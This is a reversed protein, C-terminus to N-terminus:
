LLIRRKIKRFPTELMALMLETPKYSIWPSPVISPRTLFFVEPLILKKKIGLEFKLKNHNDMASRKLHTLHWYPHSLYLLKNDENQVMIGKDNVYAELPYTGLWKYSKIKRYARLNYHGRKKKFEYNGANEPQYHFLDGVPVMMPVVVAIKQKINQKTVTVLETINNKTWVEDGDLLMFWDTRTKNIQENRLQVLEKPNVEPKQILLIKHSNISKIIKVTDDKSGTDYIIIRFVYEVVSKIAYWVWQEENNVIM